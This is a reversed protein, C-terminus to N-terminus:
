GSSLVDPTEGLSAALRASYVLLRPNPLPTPLVPVYHGSRVQRMAKNPAHLEAEPDEDLLRIWSHDAHKALEM